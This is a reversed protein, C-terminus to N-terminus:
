ESVLTAKTDVRIRPRPYVSSLVRSEIQVRFEPRSAGAVDLHNAMVESIISLDSMSPM